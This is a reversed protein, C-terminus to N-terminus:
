YILYDLMHSPFFLPFHNKTFETNSLRSISFISFKGLFKFGKLIQLYNMFIIQNSPIEQLYDPKHQTSFYFFFVNLTNSLYKLNIKSSRM